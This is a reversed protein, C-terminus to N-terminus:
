FNFASVTSSYLDGEKGIRAIERGGENKLKQVEKDITGQLNTLGASYLFKRSERINDMSFDIEAPTGEYTDKWEPLSVGTDSELDGHYTPLLSKDFNFTRTGTRKGEEDREEAGYMTDYYNELYSRQFKDKYEGGEVIGKKFSDIDTYYRNEFGELGKTLEDESAQRGLLEEYARKIGYERQRGLIGGPHMELTTATDGMGGHYFEGLDALATQPSWEKWRDPTEYDPVTTWGGEPIDDDDYREWYQRPDDGGAWAVTGQTLNYKTAYDQLQNEATTFDIIGKALKTKVQQKHTDWGARGSTQVGKQGQYRQLDGVWDRYESDEDRERQYKLYNEFTKDKPPPPPAEYTVNGKNHSLVKGSIYTHAGEVTLHVIEGKDIKKRRTFELDGDLGLVKNGKTLDKAKIWKKKDKSYFRHNPSCEINEGDFDLSLLKSNVKEVFIVKYKGREFTDQHFTDVEDGIKLKSVPKTQGNALLVDLQTTSCAM